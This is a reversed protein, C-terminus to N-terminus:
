FQQEIINTAKAYADFIDEAWDIDRLLWKGDYREYTGVCWFTGLFARGREEIRLQLFVGTHDVVNYTAEATSNMIGEGTNTTNM